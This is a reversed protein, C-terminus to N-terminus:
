CLRWGIVVAEAGAQVLAVGRGVCNGGGCCLVKKALRLDCITPGLQKRGWLVLGVWNECLREVAYRLFEVALCPEARILVGIGM